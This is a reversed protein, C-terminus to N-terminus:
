SVRRGGGAHRVHDRRHGRRHERVAAHHLAPTRVAAALRRPRAAGAPRGGDALPDVMEVVGIAGLVRVDAVGPLAARGPRARESTAARHRVGRGAVPALLLLRISALAVAAALPNGMFTPGHMLAGSEAACVGAAVEPTCLVAAMTLYGGTLAKGVCMIDPAIGAHDAASCSAAAASGPPSRTSSSSCTTSTASGDRVAALYEPAYFRMGGAGQVVPELIVAAVEDAHDLSSREFSPSTSRRRVARRVGARRRPAFLQQPCSAPSCDLADRRPTACRCAPRAHRRPLRLPRHAAPHARAPRTGRAYQLAM